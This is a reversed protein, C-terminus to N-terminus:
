RLNKGFDPNAADEISRLVRELNSQIEFHKGYRRVLDALEKEFERIKESSAGKPKGLKTFAFSEESISIRAIINSGLDEVELNPPEPTAPQQILPEDNPNPNNLLALRAVVEKRTLSLSIFTKPPSGDGIPETLWELYIARGEPKTKGGQEWLVKSIEYMTGLSSPLKEIFSTGRKNDLQWRTFEILRGCMAYTTFNSDAKGYVDELKERNFWTKFRESLVQGQANGGRGKAKVLNSRRLGYALLCLHHLSDRRTKEFSRITNALDSNLPLEKASPARYTLETMPSDKRM